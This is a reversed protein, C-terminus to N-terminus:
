KKNRKKNFSVCKFFLDQNVAFDKIKNILEETAFFLDKQDLDKHHISPGLDIGKFDDLLSDGQLIKFDLNPLPEIDKEKKQDVILSLWLRLKTIEIAYQDVDVGFICNQIFSRKFDYITNRYKQSTFKSLKFRLNSVINLYLVAFAGSGIAPDCVKINSLLHDIEDANKKLENINDIEFNNNFVFENLYKQVNNNLSNSLFDRLTSKCIYEVVDRPTYYTGRNGRIYEDLLNEFVNGLMEPDISIEIDMEEREDVTFNYLDFIDLIGTKNNNSFTSNSIKLSEKEWDYDDYYEFLSGGVYPVRCKIERVYDNNNKQNLGKYFIYELFNNFFNEKREEYEFFKNRLFSKDGTGFSKNEKVGLWGKKQLFYCFIIQGLLKKAFFDIELNIKKTFLKFEKDKNLKNKLDLYLNKYHDFFEKNVIEINFRSYLDDFNKVKGAKILNKTATHVSTNNGIM